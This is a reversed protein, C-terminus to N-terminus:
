PSDHYLGCFLVDAWFTASLLDDAGIESRQAASVIVMTPAVVAGVRGAAKALREMKLFIRGGLFAFKERSRSLLAATRAVFLRM